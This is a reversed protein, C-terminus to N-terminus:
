FVCQPCELSQDKNKSISLGQWPSGGLRGQPAQSTLAPSCVRNNSSPGKPHFTPDSLAFTRFGSCLPSSLSITLVLRARCCSSPAILSVGPPRAETVLCDSLARANLPTEDAGPEQVQNSHNELRFAGDGARRTGMAVQVAISSGARGGKLERGGVM